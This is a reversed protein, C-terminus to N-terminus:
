VVGGALKTLQQADQAFARDQPGLHHHVEGHLVRRIEVLVQGVVGLLVRHHALDAAVRRQLTGLPEHVSGGNSAGSFRRPQMIPLAAM